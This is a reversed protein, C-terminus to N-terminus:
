TGNESLSSYFIVVSEHQSLQMAAIDSYFKQNEWGIMAGDVLRILNCLARMYSKVSEPSVGYFTKVAANIAACDDVDRAVSIDVSQTEIVLNQMRIALGEFGTKGIHAYGSEIGRRLERWIAIMQFFKNEFNQIEMQRKQEELQKGQNDLVERTDKLEKRQLILEERQLMVAVILAAFAFGSFLTGTAAYDDDNMWRPVYWWLLLVMVFLLGVLVWKVKSM